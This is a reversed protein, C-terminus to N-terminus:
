AAIREHALPTSTFFRRLMRLEFIDALDLCMEALDLCRQTYTLCWRRHLEDLPRADLCPFTYFVRGPDSDNLYSGWQSAIAYAQAPSIIIAM